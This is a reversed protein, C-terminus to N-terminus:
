RLVLVKHVAQERDTDLRLFYVGGPLRRGGNDVASWTREQRGAPLRGYDWRQVARGSVDFISLAVRSERPLDFVVRSRAHVPNPRTQFFHFVGAVPPGEDVGLPHAQGGLWFGGRLTWTGAGLSGADPQGITAGLRYGGGNVFAVGGGDISRWTLADYAHVNVAFALVGMAVAMMAVLKPARSM